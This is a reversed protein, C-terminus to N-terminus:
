TESEEFYALHVQGSGYDGVFVGDADSLYATLAGYDAARKPTVHTKRELLEDIRQADAFRKVRWAAVQMAEPVSPHGWGWIFHGDDATTGAVQARVSLEEDEFRLTLVGSDMDLAFGDSRAARRGLASVAMRQGNRAVAEAALARYSTPLRKREGARERSLFVNLFDTM